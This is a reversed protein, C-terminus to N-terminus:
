KLLMMQKTQVFEGAQMRYFYPGAALNEAKFAVRYNGAQLHAAVLTTVRQGLSSYLDIRVRDAQPLSFAIVTESNFPNPYNQALAATRPLATGGVAEIVTRVENAKGPTGDIVSTGWSEPLSNDLRPSLLSLTSGEGDTEQPWPSEDDYSLSDVLAGSANYLRILEGGRSLGFGFNGIYNEVQPFAQRFQFTDRCLVLYGGPAIITRGPIIYPRRDEGDNFVWGSVDVPVEYGNYLEVWDEVDLDDPSNYNIENIVIRNLYQNDAVFRATLSIDGELDIATSALNPSITGSWGEFRYGPNPLATVQIPVGQFYTGSWPFAAIDLTNLMITGAGPPDINLEVEATASIGFKEMIFQRLHPPREVAYLAQERLNRNWNELDGGWRAFHHALEPELVSKMEEVTQAVRDPLFISNMQDASRNAYAEVFSQNKFLQRILFTTWAPYRGPGTPDTAMELTNHRVGGSARGLGWDIDFLMWRWKGDPTRPRWFKMNNGLWDINGLYIEAAIYAVFHDMYMQTAVYDFHDQQSLDNASMFDIMANYHEADGEIVIPPPSGHYLELIDVEDPDVGQHAALYEENQKERLNHIGWYAGNIYVIVPRYAMLDVDLDGVLAQCLEDRFLTSHDVLDRGSNRLVLATFEEIPLDPFVRYNIESYGYESRAFLAMGKRPYTRGALGIIKVGADISFGLTGDAEFFEVHVPREWDEGYNANYRKREYTGNTGKVYIGIKDDFFHDPHTSLSMVPLEFDRGVLYTRTTVPGPLIGPAYARAKVVTTSDVSIPETYLSMSVSEAPEAGDLTYYIRTGPGAASMQVETGDRHFGAAPEIAVAGTFTEFGETLNSAGPTPTPFIKWAEGGDPERGWSFDTPIQEGEIRDILDGSSNTLFLPEGNSRIKFNTHSVTPFQLFDPIGRAAAPASKLGLTLLPLASIHHVASLSHVQIALTNEGAVLLAQVEELDFAEPGNGSNAAATEDHPPPTGTEGINSRAVESGNLYAVFGDEYDLHLFLRLVADLDAIAFTTRLYVSTQNSPSVKRPLVTADGDRYGFRSPGSLWSSDDFEASRWDAPPEELGVFYRWEDGAALITEWHGPVNTRDKGSAFVLRHQGPEIVGHPFIWKFPEDPDDSLGYGTLDIPAAGPNFLEIWDPLDGDEDAITVTNSPMFENILPGVNEQSFVANASCMSSIATMVLLKKRLFQM